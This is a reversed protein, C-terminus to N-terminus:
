RLFFFFVLKKGLVTAVYALSAQLIRDGRVARIVCLRQTPTYHDDLKDPLQVNEPAETECLSRWQTERGDKSMRDFVDSFWSHYIALYQLNLFQEDTMWDFPKKHLWYKHETMQKGTISQMVAAGYSPSIIFEKEGASIRDSAAEIEMALLIAYIKKDHETIM